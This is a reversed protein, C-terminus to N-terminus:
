RVAFRRRASEGGWHDRDATTRARLEYRGPALRKTLKFASSGSLRVKALLVWRSGALRELLIPRGPHAPAVKGSVTATRGRLGVTLSVRQKDVYVIPSMGTLHERDGATRARFRYKGRPDLKRVAAFTSKSGTKIRALTKWGASGKRGELVVVRGPHSPGIRGRFTGKGSKRVGALTLLHRVRVSVTPELTLGPYGAKYTTHKTPLVQTTFAGLADSTAGGVPGFLTDPVPQSSIAVTGSALPAGGQRLTGMLTAPRGFVVVPTATTLTLEPPAPPPPPPPPTSGSTYLVKLSNVRPTAQGDASTLDLTVRLAQRTGAPIAGLPVVTDGNTGLASAALQEGTAADVIKATATGNGSGGPAFVSVNASLSGWATVVRGPAPAIAATTANGAPSFSVPAHTLEVRDLSPSSAPNSLRAQWRVARVTLLFNLTESPGVATVPFYDSWFEGGGSSYPQLYSLWLSADGTSTRAIQRFDRPSTTVSGLQYTAWGDPTAPQATVPTPYPTTAHAGRSRGTRDVTDLWLHLTSGDVLVGAAGVGAEDHAFPAQSPNLVAGRKVWTIGDASTAYGVREITEGELTEVGTYLMRYDGAALKVVVPDQVSTADFEGASGLDVVAGAARTFPGGPAPSTARGIRSVGGGDTGAYYMVYASGDNLVSPHGVASSDFGSGDGALLQSRASWATNDPLKTAAVEAASALGISRTAGSDLGTFYLHYSGGDYLVSPDRQGGNDLSAPNGLGFLAGGDPASVSVKAWATGDASTAQGLRPKFDSGRSGSYFGVFKVSAGAPAAASLGSAERGDFATGLTGVDLVSGGSQAGNVKNFSSGNSSQAFGIRTHFNGNADLTNGSYYLKFPSATGPDGLLEPSNLNSYDFNSNSGSPNLAPSPGSWSIGDASTTSMIKTQFDGGGVLKRGSLLMSYGSATKWVTPAFAGFEINASVGPDEPAIVKGGRAWTVGDQSTAYAIRKKSSDDGTYWMKWTAGEKLVTPDAAGFSDASGPPGHTLVPLPNPGPGPFKTWTLGDASTAYGIGVFADAAGSYYMRYPAIADSPDYVVDAGYVGDEDFAGATGTLVPTGGNTRVWSAGDTSTARFLAPGSGDEATGSYWMVYTPGAKVVAPDDVNDSDLVSSSAPRFVPNAPDRVLPLLTLPLALTAGSGAGSRTLTAVGVRGFVVSEHTIGTDFQGDTDWTAAVSSGNTALRLGGLADLTTATLPLQLCSTDLFTEFFAADDKSCAQAAGPSVLAAVVLVVLIRRV